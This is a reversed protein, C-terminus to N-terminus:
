STQRPGSWGCWCWHREDRHAWPPNPGARSGRHASLAPFQHIEFALIPGCRTGPRRQRVAHPLNGLLAGLPRTGPGPTPSRRSCARARWQARQISARLYPPPAAQARIARRAVRSRPTAAGPSLARRPGHLHELGLDDWSLSPVHGVRAARTPLCRPREASRLLRLRRAAAPRRRQAPHDRVHIAGRGRARGRGLAAAQRATTSRSTTAKSPARSALM